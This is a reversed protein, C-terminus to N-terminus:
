KACKSFGCKEYMALPGQFGDNAFKKNTYGEVFDFGDVAADRCVRELLQTALGKRQMAPAIVFCFVSKIKVGAPYQEIPWESRLHNVGLQGDANANCWGVIKDGHYALYGQIHGDRVFQLAKERREEETPYWHNGDGAYSADSRWAVCYCKIGYENNHPTEDFFRVYDETLDPTLRRIEINM